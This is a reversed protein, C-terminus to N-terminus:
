FLPRLRPLVDTVVREYLSALLDMLGIQPPDGSQELAVLAHLKIEEPRQGEAYSFFAELKEGSNLRQEDIPPLPFREPLPFAGGMVEFGPITAVLLPLHRHKSERNLLKLVFLPHERAGQGDQYPQVADLADLAQQDTIARKGQKNVINIVPHTGDDNPLMIPFYTSSGPVQNPERLVLQWALYDLAGQLTNLFDAARLGIEPPPPSRLQVTTTYGEREPQDEISTLYPEGDVYQAVAFNLNTWQLEAWRLKQLVQSIDTAM